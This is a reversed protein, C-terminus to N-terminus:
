KLVEYSSGNFTVDLGLCMWGTLEKVDSESMGKRPLRIKEVHCDAFCVHAISDKNSKHNFGMPEMTAGGDYDNLGDCTLTGDCEENSGTAYSPSSSGKFEKFPLEAFLLRRDTRKLHGYRLGQYYPYKIGTKPNNQRNHAGFYSNMAYSWAPESLKRKRAVKIHEPCQYVSRSGSLHRWLVGNTYCYERAKEDKTYCSVFYSDQKLSHSQNQAPYRGPAYWSLWGRAENVVNHMDQANLNGTASLVEVSSAFPYYGSAMGYSQVANALNRMNSLCKAARASETGGSMNTVLAVVLISIIGIVVLMEVLTFGKKM